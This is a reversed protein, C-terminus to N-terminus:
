KEKEEKASLLIYDGPNMREWDVGLDSIDEVPLMFQGGVLVNGTSSGDSKLAKPKWWYGKVSKSYNVVNKYEDTFICHHIEKKKEPFRPVAITITYM